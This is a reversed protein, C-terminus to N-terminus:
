RLPVAAFTPDAYVPRGEVLTLLVRVKRLEAPAVDFLNRDLVIVDASKGVEISGDTTDERAFRAANKTYAALMAPLTMYAGSRSASTKRTMAAQIADLPNMSTSPWDSSSLITAGTAAIDAMPYLARSRESGLALRTGKAAPDDPLFWMPQFNAGVGLTAFRAIDSPSAVAIHALQHRRDRAGNARAAAEFSDLAARVAGDGMTHMHILFGEADLKQVMADLIEPPAFLSGRSDPQDAYADLMAATHQDIEGDLFIKAADARLMESHASDRQSAMDDVQEIGRGGVVLQAAVIRVTLEGARDAARYAELMDPSVSADFISTIGYRNAIATTRKLAERYEAADPRPVVHRVRDAAAREVLGTASGTAPDRRVGDDDSGPKAADIGAEELARSNAWGIFGEETTLFAPRDPVLEDLKARSPGASGFMKPSWGRGLLWAHASDKACRRISQYVAERSTAEELRCRLLKMGGSMPHSHADHFGPMVMRGRLDIERLGPRRYTEAGRDDGVYVIRGDEIVLATAWPMSPNETYVAGGRLLLAEPRVAQADAGAASLAVAIFIPVFRLCRSM